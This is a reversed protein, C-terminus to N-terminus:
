IRQLQKKLDDFSVLPPDYSSSGANSDPAASLPSVIAQKFSRTKENGRDGIENLQFSLSEDRDSADHVDDSDTGLRLLGTGLGSSGAGAGASLSEGAEGGEGEDTPMRHYEMDQEDVEEVNKDIQDNTNHESLLASRLVGAARKSRKLFSVPRVALEFCTFMCIGMVVGNFVSYTFPILVIETFVVISERIEHWAIKGSSEFLMLAICLLVPTTCAAPLTALIPTFPITAFYLLGCVVSSLGTKSGAKIGPASEPSILVPGAGVFSSFISGSGIAFYLWRSQQKWIPSDAGLGATVALGSSLGDVLIVAIVFLDFFLKWVLRDSFGSRSIDFFSPFDGAMAFFNLPPWTKHSDSIVYLIASTLMGIFFAGRVQYHLCVGIVVLSFFSIYVDGTFEGATLITRDGRQVVNIQCLAELSVLMAIGLIAGVKISFPVVKNLVRVAGGNMSCGLLLLGLLLISVNGNTRSMATNQLILGFYLSTSTTPALVFPLNTTCGCLISSFGTALATAVAVQRGEAVGSDGSLLTPNVALIFATCAFHVVGGKIERLLNTERERISFFREVVIQLYSATEEDAKRPAFLTGYREM